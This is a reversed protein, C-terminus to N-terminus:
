DDTEVGSRVAARASNRGRVPQFLPQGFRDVGYRAIMRQTDPALLFQVFRLAGARNVGPHRRASVVIVSYQNLLDPDGEYLIVSMLHSRQFLYTSRDSLTYANLESAMRLGQAMGAGAKRYWDGSTEVGAAQWLALEKRHTGSDDGRSVFLAGAHAIRRLADAASTAARVDAPDDRPGVIVFDNFMVVERVEGWGGAMFEEEGKPAHTLLVDADGRRGLALAQGSGVAVVKVQIGTQATFAPLLEDLLGSDRTSTTTALVITNAETSASRCGGCLMLVSCAFLMTM